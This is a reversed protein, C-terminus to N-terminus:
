KLIIQGALVNRLMTNLNFVNIYSVPYKLLDRNKMITGACYPCFILSNFVLLCCNTFARWYTLSEQSLFFTSLPVCGSRLRPYFWKEEVLLAWTHFTMWSKEEKLHNLKVCVKEETYFAIHSQLSSPITIKKFHIILGHLSLCKASNLHNVINGQKLEIVIEM